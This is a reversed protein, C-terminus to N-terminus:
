SVAFRAGLAHQHFGAICVIVEKARKNKLADAALVCQWAAAALLGEGLIKKPSLRDGTWDNWLRIEDSPINRSGGIGDILLTNRDSKGLENKVSELAAAKSYKSYLFEDTIQKLEVDTKETTLLLAGAGEALIMGKDFMRTADSTLWDIEESGVIVCQTVKKEQLWMAATALGQLFTGFDGVLTYNIANTGFYASIHSAPSNFVTEPFLLPSATTPDKLVEDYFRRSYQICGSFICVIVGINKLDANLGGMACAEAAAALAFQSIPSSRRLRPHAMFAPRPNPSPVQFGKIPSRGPRALERSQALEGKAIADRLASMGWGDPSVAGWGSVYVPIM